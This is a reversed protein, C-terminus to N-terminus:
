ERWYILTSRHQQVILVACHSLATVRSKGVSSLARTDCFLKEKNGEIHLVTHQQNNSRFLTEHLTIKHAINLAWCRWHAKHLKHCQHHLLTNLTACHRRKKSFGQFHWFCSREIRKWKGPVSDDSEDNKLYYNMMMTAMMMMLMTIMQLQRHPNTEWHRRYNWSRRALWSRQDGSLWIMTIIIIVLIIFLIITLIIIFIMIIIIVLIIFLIITLIIILIM